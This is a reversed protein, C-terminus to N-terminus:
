SCFNHIIGDFGEFLREAPMPKAFLYGQGTKCGAAKLWDVQGSTEVGEATVGLGLSEAVSLTAHIIEGHPAADAIRDVFTKDIKLADFLLSNLYGFSSYGTGFDDIELGVKLGHLNQITKLADSLQDILVSETVELRLATADLGTDALVSAVQAALDPKHLQKTSPNVTVTLPLGSIEQWRKAARCAERLVWYGIAHIHGTEEAVTIFEAPALLGRTPHQWRVLAEFGMLERTDLKVKPQYYVLFEGRDVARQLDLEIELRAQTAERM